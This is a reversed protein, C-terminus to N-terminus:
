RRWERRPFRRADARRRELGSLGVEYMGLMANRIDPIVGPDMPEFNLLWLVQCTGDSRSTVHLTGVLNSAPLMHPERITYQFLMSDHDITEIREELQGAEMTCVRTAGEGSGRLECSTILPFWQEVGGAQAVIKWVGAASANLTKTIAVTKM